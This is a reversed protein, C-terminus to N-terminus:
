VGGEAVWAEARLGAAAEYERAFAEPYNNRWDDWEEGTVKAIEVLFGTLHQGPCNKSIPEDPVISNISGGRDLQGLIIYDPRAGHKVM